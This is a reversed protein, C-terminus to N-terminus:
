KRNCVNKAKKIAKKLEKQLSQDSLVAVSDQDLFKAANNQQEDVALLVEILGRLVNLLIGGVNGAFHKGDM